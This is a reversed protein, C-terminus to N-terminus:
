LTLVIVHHPLKSISDDFGDDVVEFGLKSYFRLATDRGNAWVLSDGGERARAIVVGLLAAGVGSGQEDPEVAMFRFRQAPIGPHGPAEEAYGSVVGVLRRDRFAGLHWTGPSADRESTAPADPLHGRLVRRRLDTTAEVEIDRVEIERAAEGV